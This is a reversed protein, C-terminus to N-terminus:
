NYVVVGANGHNIPKDLHDNVLIDELDFIRYSIFMEQEERNLKGIKERLYYDLVQFIDASTFSSM